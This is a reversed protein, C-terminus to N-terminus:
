SRVLHGLWVQRETRILLVIQEVTGVCEQTCPCVYIDVRLLRFRHTTNNIYSPTEHMCPLKLEM